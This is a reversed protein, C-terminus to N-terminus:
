VGGPIYRLTTMFRASIEIRLLVTVQNRVMRIAKPPMHAYLPRPLSSSGDKVM